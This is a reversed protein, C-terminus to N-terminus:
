REYLTVTSQLESAWAKNPAEFVITVINQETKAMTWKKNEMQAFGTEVAEPMYNKLFLEYAEKAQDENEYQILLLYGTDGGNVTYEAFVCNTKNTLDLINESAIFFVNNLSINSHFYSIRNKRLNKEPLYKILEPESGPQAIADAVVKGLELIPQEAIQEDGIAVISVFYRDKWFRLLGSGYESGQGIDAEEDERGCSFIGFAEASSGMDYIDLVIENEDPGTFRRVWVKKFDYALYLEAGGDMYNYLTERNYIEDKDETKWQQVQKPISQYLEEVNGGSCNIILFLLLLVRIRRM